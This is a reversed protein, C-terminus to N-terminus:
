RRRPKDDRTVEGALKDFYHAVVCSETCKGCANCKASDVTIFDGLAIANMPCTRLCIGCKTCLNARLVARSVKDFLQSAAQPSKGVVTIQNGAFVKASGDKTELMAVGFDDMLRVEGLTKLLEATHNLSKSTPMQLVAEVSYGGAACPSVGKVTRLSITDARKPQIELGIREALARMKPPLQKWRWFGYRVFEPPLRNEEAWEDLKQQWARALDPSRRAIEATESALSSPCMWCGVREIDEDYLPNHELERWVIHLWVDLATWDRIPNVIVQGPVFPNENVLETDARSFSELRRNGEVTLTGKPFLEEIVRTAPALKCVKCCWRFDKAPPGFASFNKEFADEADATILRFQMKKALAEVYNSTEPHELGTDIFIATFEQTVSSVLDLVVLSDKGGSFSVSVPLKRGNIVDKIEHEAKAKKAQIYPLNAKIVDKTWARRGPSLPGAQSFERVKVGKPSNRLEPADVKAAGCGIFKGMQVVVEDGARIDPDLKDIAEPPLYKGKMHGEAKRLTILRKPDAHALMRAGDIRLTLRYDMKELDYTLLAIRRGDVIIEESRDEGSTKNLVFIDPILNQVGFQRLFLYRLRKKTGELALRIDGPPALEVPRGQRGCRGCTRGVLPVNCPDCWYMAPPEPRFKGRM